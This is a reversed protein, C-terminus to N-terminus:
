GQAEREAIEKVKALGKEYDPGIFRDMMLGFWRSMVDDAKMHFTWTARTGGDKPELSWSADSIGMEGFDLKSAVKGPPAYEVIEQSGKGVNPNDSAWTMKSGVGTEPGEFTYSTKPDLGAWPSWENFRKFSGVLEFVKEPPANIDAQRTVTVDAPLLYAGGVILLLLAAMIGVIIKIFTKM